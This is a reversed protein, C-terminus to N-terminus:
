IGAGYTENKGGYHHSKTNVQLPTIKSLNGDVFGQNYATKEIENIKATIALKQKDRLILADEKLYLDNGDDDKLHEMEMDLVDDLWELNNPETSVGRCNAIMIDKNDKPDFVFPQSFIVNAIVPKGDKINQILQDKTTVPEPM